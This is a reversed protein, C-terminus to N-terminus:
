SLFSVRIVRISNTIPSMMRTTPASARTLPADLSAEVIPMEGSTTPRVTTANPVLEGSSATLTIALTLLLAAMPRPFTTPLLMNLTRNMSPMDATITGSATDRCIMLSSTGMIIIQETMTSSRPRSPFMLRVSPTSNVAPMIAYVVNRIRCLLFSFSVGVSSNALSYVTLPFFVIRM